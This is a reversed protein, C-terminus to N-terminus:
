RKIWLVSKTIWKKFKPTWNRDLNQVDEKLPQIVNEEMYDKLSTM